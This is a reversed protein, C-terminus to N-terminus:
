AAVIGNLFPLREYSFGLGSVIAPDGSLFSDVEAESALRLIGLGWVGAPDAIPGYVVVTGRRMAAQWYAAHAGMAAREDQSMDGAFGPRPPILRCFWLSAPPHAPAEM